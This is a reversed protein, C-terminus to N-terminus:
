FAQVLPLMSLRILDSESTSVEQHLKFEFDLELNLYLTKLHIQHFLSKFSIYIITLKAFKISAIAAVNLVTIAAVNVVAVAAVNFVAVAAVYILTAEAIYVVAVAAVNVVAVVKIVVVVANNVAAVAAVNAVAVDNYGRCLFCLPPINIKGKRDCHKYIQRNVKEM